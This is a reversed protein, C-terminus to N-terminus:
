CTCAQYELLEALESLGGWREVVHALDYRNARVFDMKLPMIRPPLGEQECFEAIEREVNKLKDWYGRPAKAQRWWCTILIELFDVVGLIVCFSCIESRNHLIKVRCM